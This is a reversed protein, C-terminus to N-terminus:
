PIPSRLFALAGSRPGRGLRLTGLSLTSRDSIRLLHNRDPIRPLNAPPCQPEMWRRAIVLL